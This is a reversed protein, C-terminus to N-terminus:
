GRVFALGKPQYFCADQVIVVLVEVVAIKTDHRACAHLCAIEVGLAITAFDSPERWIASIATVPLPHLCARLQPLAFNLLMRDHAEAM